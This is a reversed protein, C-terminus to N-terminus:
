RRKEKRWGRGIERARGRGKRKGERKGGRVRNGQQGQMCFIKHWLLPKSVIAHKNQNDSFSPHM